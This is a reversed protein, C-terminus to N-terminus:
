TIVQQRVAGLWKRFWHQSIKLLTWHSEISPLKVLSLEGM